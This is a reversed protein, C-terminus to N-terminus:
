DIRYEKLLEDFNDYKKSPLTSLVEKWTAPGKVTDALHFLNALYIIAQGDDFIFGCFNKDHVNGNRLKMPLTPWKPWEDSHKIFAREEDISM